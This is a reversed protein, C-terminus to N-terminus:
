QVEFSLERHQQHRGATVDVRLRYLGAQLSGGPIPYVFSAGNDATFPAAAKKLRTLELREGRSDVVSVSFEVEGSKFRSSLRLPLAVSVAMTRPVQRAAIPVVPVGSTAAGANGVDRSSATGLFLGGLVLDRPPDEVEMDFYVSGHRGTDERRAGVRMQYKGSRVDLRLAVRIWRSDNLVAPPVSLVATASSQARVRGEMDIAAGTVELRSAGLLQNGQIETMLLVSAGAIGAHPLPVAVTRLTLGHSPLAAGVLANETAARDSRDPIAAYGPRARARLGPRRIRVDIRHFKGDDDARQAYGILYYQSSDALMRGVANEYLNTAVAARGGTSEALMRLGAGQEGDAKIQAARDDVTSVETMGDINWAYRPDFTYVTLSARQAYTYFQNLRDLGDDYVIGESILVVIKKRDRIEELDRALRLLIDLLDEGSNRETLAPRDFVRAIRSVDSTFEVQYLRSGSTSLMAVQDRPTMGKSLALVTRKLRQFRGASFTLSLDDILLVFIRGDRTAENTSRFSGSDDRRVAEHPAHESLSVARFSVIEAAQGDELVEFDERTLGTVPEGRDDTVVVDVQIVKIGSRFRQQGVSTAAALSLMVVVSVIARGVGNRPDLPRNFSQGLDGTASTPKV